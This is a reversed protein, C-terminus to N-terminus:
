IAFRVFPPIASSRVDPAGHTLYVLEDANKVPLVRLIVADLLSFIATNAGIGLALTLIVITSLGPNRIMQRASYRLDQWLSEVASEWGSSRVEEKIAEFSGMEVRAARTAEIYGEGSRMKDEAAADLYSRLEEDLESSRQNKRFLARLGSLFIRILTMTDEIV